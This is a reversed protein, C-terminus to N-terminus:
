PQPQRYVPRTRCRQNAPLRQPNSRAPHKGPIMLDRALRGLNEILVLKTGDAHLATIMEALAPRNELDKTGSVGEERYVHAIKTDHATAYSKIAALQRPFGDGDVQGKGSVRLYAFARIM